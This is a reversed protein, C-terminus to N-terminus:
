IIVDESDALYTETETKKFLSVKYSGAELPGIKANFETDCVCSDDMDEPMLYLNITSGVIEYDFKLDAYCKQNFNYGLVIYSNVADYTIEPLIYEEKGGFDKRNFCGKYNHTVIDRNFFTDSILLLGLVLFVLILVAYLAYHFKKNRHTYRIVKKNM